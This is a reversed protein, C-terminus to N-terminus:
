CALKTCSPMSRTRSVTEEISFSKSCMCFRILVRRLDMSFCTAEFRLFTSFFVWFRTLRSRSKLAQRQLQGEELSSSEEPSLLSYAGSLPLPAPPTLVWGNDDFRDESRTMSAIKRGAPAM